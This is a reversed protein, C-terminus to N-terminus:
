MEKGRNRGKEIVRTMKEGDFCQKFPEDKVFLSLKYPLPLNDKHVGPLCTPSHLYLEM